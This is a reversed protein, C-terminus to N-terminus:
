MDYLRKSREPIEQCSNGAMGATPTFRKQAGKERRVKERSLRSLLFVDKRLDYSLGRSCVNIASSRGKHDVRINGSSIFFNGVALGSGEALDHSPGGEGHGCGTGAM